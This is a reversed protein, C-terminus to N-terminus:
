ILTASARPHASSLSYHCTQKGKARAECRVRYTAATIWPAPLAGEALARMLPSRIRRSSDGDDRIVLM